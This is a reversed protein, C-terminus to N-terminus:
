NGQRGLHAYTLGEKLVVFETGSAAWQLSGYQRMTELALQQIRASENPSPAGRHTDANTAAASPTPRSLTLNVPVVM